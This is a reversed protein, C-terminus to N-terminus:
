GGGECGECLVYRGRDLCQCRLTLYRQCADCRHAHALPRPPDPWGFFDWAAMFPVGARVAASAEDAEACVLLAEEPRVRHRELVRELRTWAGGRWVSLAPGPFPDEALGFFVESPRLRLAEYLLKWCLEEIGSELAGGPPLGVALTMSGHRTLRLPYRALVEAVNPKLHVDAPERLTGDFGLILLAPLLLGPSPPRGSHAVAAAQLRYHQQLPDPTERM